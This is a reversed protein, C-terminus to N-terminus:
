GGILDTLMNGLGKYPIHALDIGAEVLFYEM